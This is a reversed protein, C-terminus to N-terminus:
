ETLASEENGIHNRNDEFYVVTLYQGTHITDGKLQNMIRLEKVYEEITMTSNEKYEDAISWLSDGSKIQISKYYRSYRGQEEGAMVNFISRGLFISSMITVVTVLWLWRKM